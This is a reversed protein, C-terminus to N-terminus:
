SVQRRQGRRKILDSVKGLLEAIFGVITGVIVAKLVVHWNFGKGKFAFIVAIILGVIVGLTLGGWVSNRGKRFYIILLIGAIVGLVKWM